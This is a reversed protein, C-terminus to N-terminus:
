GRQPLLALARPESLGDRLLVKRHAGDPRSVEITDTGKDCWYVNGGVWDVALGDPNQLTAGHLLQCLVVCRLYPVFEGNMNM